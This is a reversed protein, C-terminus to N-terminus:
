VGDPHRTRLWHLLQRHTDADAGLEEPCEELRDLVIGIPTVGELHSLILGSLTGTAAYGRVTWVTSVYVTPVGVNTDLRVSVVKVAQRIATDLTGM